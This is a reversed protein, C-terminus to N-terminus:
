YVNPRCYFKPDKYKLGYRECKQKLNKDIIEKEMNKLDTLSLTDAVINGIIYIDKEEKHEEPDNTYNSCSFFEEGMDDWIWSMCQTECNERFHKIDDYIFEIGYYFLVRDEYMIYVRDKHFMNDYVM